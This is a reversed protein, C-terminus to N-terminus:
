NASVTNPTAEQLNVPHASAARIAAVFTADTEPPRHQIKGVDMNIFGAVIVGAIAGGAGGTVAAKGYGMNTAGTVRAALGGAAGAAGFAAGYKLASVGHTKPDRVVGTNACSADAPPVSAPTADASFYTYLHPPQSPDRPIWIGGDYTMHTLLNAPKDAMDPRGIAVGGPPARYFTGTADEREAVYPGRELRTVWTVSLLGAVTTKSLPEPLEFCTLQSPVRLTEPEVLTACGSLLFGGSAMAAAACLAKM